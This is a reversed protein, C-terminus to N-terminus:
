LAIAKQYAPRHSLRDAYPALNPMESFDIGIRQASIVASGTMIDAASFDGALYDHAALRDNVAGLMQGLLKTARKVNM